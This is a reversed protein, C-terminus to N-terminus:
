VIPDRLLPMSLCHSGGRARSLEGSPLLILTNRIEEPNTENKEFQNLLENAHVVNFGKRKFGEATKDNRDYAIVVGEKLALVNCSDTWQERQGFPFVGDGSYIFETPEESKLDKRSIDDLLDELYDFKVPQDVKGKQFQTINLTFKETPEGLEPILDKTDYDTGQKSFPAHIVWLNRKVQTFTTDIHMFARKNPIQVVSVKDVVNRSFLKQIVVSAAHLSTRESCGILLHNPAVTMVDGGEITVNKYKKENDDYLFYDEKNTIEIIKDRYNEFMKHNFMIYATLIAERSRAQTAPRTLMIHDNVVVAIDRTFIFNPIPPFIMKQTPLIGSILTRALDHNSLHFLSEQTSYSTGEFSCISAVLKNKVEINELIEALLSQPDIVKDSKFYNTKDPKYFDRNQDPHDIDKIKGKVKEPDLFYLLIKTYLDYEKSRMTDLHIIDEFLWDQAKSPIVKGIGADPSHILLKRLTGVESSVHINNPTSM